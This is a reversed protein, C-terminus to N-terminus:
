GKKRDTEKEKPCTPKDDCGASKQQTEIAQRRSKLEDLKAADAAGTAAIQKKVAELQGALDSCVLEDLCSKAAGGFDKYFSIRGVLSPKETLTELAKILSDISDSEVSIRNLSSLYQDRDDSARFLLKSTRAIDLEAYERLRSRLESGNLPKSSIFQGAVDDGRERRETDLMAFADSEASASYIKALDKYAKKEAGAKAEIQAQYTKLVDILGQAYQRAEEDSKCGIASFALAATLLTTFACRM